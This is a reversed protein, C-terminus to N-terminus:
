STENGFVEDPTRLAEVPWLTSVLSNGINFLLSRNMTIRASHNVLQDTTLTPTLWYKKYSIEGLDSFPREPTGPYKARKSM